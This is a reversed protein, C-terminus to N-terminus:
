PKKYKPLQRGDPSSRKQKSLAVPFYTALIKYLAYRVSQSRHKLDKKNLVFGEVVLDDVASQDVQDADPYPQEWNAEVSHDHESRMFCVDGATSAVQHDKNHLHPNSQAWLQRMDWM